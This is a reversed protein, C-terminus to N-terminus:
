DCCGVDEGPEGVGGGEEGDRFADEVGAAGHAPVRVGVLALLAQEPVVRDEGDVVPPYQRM